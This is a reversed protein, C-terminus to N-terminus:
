GKSEIRRLVGLLGHMHLPKLLMHVRPRKLGAVLRALSEDIVDSFIAVEAPQQDAPLAALGLVVDAREAADADIVLLDARAHRLADIAREASGTPTVDHGLDSLLRYAPVAYAESAEDHVVVAKLTLQEQATM